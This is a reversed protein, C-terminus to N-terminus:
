FRSALFTRLRHKMDPVADELRLFESAEMLRWHQGEDGFRIREAEQPTIDAVCFYSDLRGGVASEYRRLSRVRDQTLTIGFEEEVKRLACSVPSEVGERGGGPLDWLGSFPLDAKEDRRYAVVRSGCFLAIKAGGFPRGDWAM